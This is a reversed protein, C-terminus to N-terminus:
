GYVTRDQIVTRKGQLAADDVRYIEARMRYKHGPDFRHVHIGSEDVCCSLQMQFFGMQQAIRVAGVILEAPTDAAAPIRDAFLIGMM